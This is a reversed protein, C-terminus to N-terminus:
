DEMLERYNFKKGLADVISIEPGSIDLVRGDYVTAYKKVTTWCELFSKGKETVRWVGPRGGDPRREIEGEILGWYALKGEEASSRGVTTPVHQWQLGNTRYMVILSQAMGSNITRKYVKAYRTCCPCHVGEVVLERLLDRAQALTMEDYFADM